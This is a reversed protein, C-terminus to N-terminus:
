RALAHGFRQEGAGFSAYLLAARGARNTYRAVAVGFVSWTQRGGHAVDSNRAGRAVQARCRQMGRPSATDFAM